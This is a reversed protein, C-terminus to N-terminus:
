FTLLEIRRHEVFIRRMSKPSSKENMIEWYSLLGPCFVIMGSQQTQQGSFILVLFPILEIPQIETLNIASFIHVLIDHQFPRVAGFVCDVVMAGVM